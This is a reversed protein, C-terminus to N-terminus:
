IYQVYECALSHNFISFICSWKEKLQSKKLLKSAIVDQPKRVFFLIKRAM